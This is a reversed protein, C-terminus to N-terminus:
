GNIGRRKLKIGSSLIAIRLCMYGAFCSIMGVIGYFKYALSLMLVYIVIRIIYSVLAKKKANKSSFDLFHDIIYLNLNSILTGVLIFLSCYISKMILFAIVMM